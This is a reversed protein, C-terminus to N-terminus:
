TWAGFFSVAEVFPMSYRQMQFALVDGGHIGCAFCRFGGSVMHLSLSPIKDDHFCCRVIVWELKIKLGPFERSYYDAPAPLLNRNLQRHYRKRTHNAPKNKTFRQGRPREPFLGPTKIKHTMAFEKYNM